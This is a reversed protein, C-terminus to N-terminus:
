KILLMMKALVQGATTLRYCYAGSAFRSADFQVTYVGAPKEADVLTAVERGIMDYVKLLVNSQRPVSFQIKTSPNFPNPYNQALSYSIPVYTSQVTTAVAGTKWPFRFARYSVVSDPLRLEYAVSGDPRVETVAPSTAGWGIFTNGSSLRQVSGLAAGYVDPSHRFQWSLTVSKAQEDMLYEVARSYRPAHFNGDDFMMLTGAPTRRISHQHSFGRSDNAFAFQNNKGGWRWIISGTQRDIKTIEDLHRSSILINGDNDSELGNAHVYDITAALLNEHTADTIQFHDFTRWQFVVNKNQDLEQIVNGIVTASPNGGPVVKSMDVTQPDLGLLLAHGNPLMLLEHNDTAYGNGCKYSDIIAYGSDLVYFVKNGSDFYTLTGNPQLKFDTTLNPTKKTFVPTGDSSLILLYQDPSPVLSAHVSDVSVDLKFTGLFIEGPSPSNNQLVVM